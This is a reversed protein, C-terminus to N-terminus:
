NDIPQPALNKRQSYNIVTHLKSDHGKVWEEPWVWHSHEQPSQPVTSSAVIQCSTGGAREELIQGDM